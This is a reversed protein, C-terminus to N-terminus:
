DLVLRKIPPQAKVVILIFKFEGVITHVLEEINLEETNAVYMPLDTSSPVIIRPSKFIHYDGFLESLELLDMYGDIEKFM